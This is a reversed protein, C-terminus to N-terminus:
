QNERGKERNGSLGAVQKFARDLATGSGLIRPGPKWAM